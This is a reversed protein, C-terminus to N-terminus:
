NNRGMQGRTTPTRPGPFAAEAASKVVDYLVGGAVAKIAERVLTRIGGNVAEIENVNLERM